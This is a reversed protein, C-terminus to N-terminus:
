RSRPRVRRRHSRAGSGFRFLAAWEHADLDRALRGRTSDVGSRSHAVKGVGHRFGAAVFRRYEVAADLDVLPSGRRRVVLVGADVSPVPAFSSRALRRALSMEFFAGWYVSNLSSPWPLARKVAVNWEVILDARQLHGRPELLMQLLDTTRHFPLNAVVRYPQAPLAVRTADSTVVRVNEWRGELARALSADVEIAIVRDAVQALHQTLRGSGAGLDLVLDGRAIEADRVLERALADSRLFHQSRPASRRARQPRRGAVSAALPTPPCETSNVDSEALGAAARADPERLRVRGCPQPSLWSSGAGHAHKRSSLERRGTSLVDPTPSLM